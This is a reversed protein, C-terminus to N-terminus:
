LKKSGLRALSLKLTGVQFFARGVVLAIGLKVQPQLAVGLGGVLQMHQDLGELGLAPAAHRGLGARQHRVAGVQHAALGIAVQTVDGAVAHAIGAEDGDVGVGLLLGHTIQAQRTHLTLHDRHQDLLVVAQELVLRAGLFATSLSSGKAM